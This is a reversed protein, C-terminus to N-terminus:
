CTIFCDGFRWNFALYKLVRPLNGIGLYACSSAPTPVSTFRRIRTYASSFSNLFDALPRSVGTTSSVFCFLTMREKMLLPPLTPFPGQGALTIHSFVFFYVRWLQPM